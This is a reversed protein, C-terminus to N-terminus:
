SRGVGVTKSQETLRGIQAVMRKSTWAPIIDLEVLRSPNAEELLTM